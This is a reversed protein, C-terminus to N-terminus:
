YLIGYLSPSYWDFILFLFLYIIFFSCIFLIASVGIFLNRIYLLVYARHPHKSKTLEDADPTTIDVSHEFNKFLRYLVKKLM